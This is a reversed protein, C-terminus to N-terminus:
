DNPPISFAAFLKQDGRKLYLAIPEGAAVDELESYFEEVTNVSKRNIKLILDGERLGARQSNSGPIVSTVVVGEDEEINYQRKLSPILDSVSFGLDERSKKQAVKTPEEAPYEGITVSVTKEDGDRLIKLQVKTGPDTSGVRTSLHTVNKIREGNLGIIVDEVKLDAKEAPSDEMIETVVVGEPKDLNFTEALDPTINQIGVGLWGRVVRGKEVIDTMVKEALKSPIAFGIGMNGGTRTAIATNIGILEGKLNVLPGGSNGPNIAADTQIYDQYQSRGVGSRGKASVIGATVTHALEPQLPSGIALVWQGVRLAESDGIKIAPLDDADIKIVALDTREDTGEVTAELERGDMLTVYIDDADDVVHDNTLIIGDERVIVGSGLGQQVFEGQPNPMNFFRKFFDDGFFQSFPSIQRNKIVTKTYITVVSPNVTEAVDAFANSIAELVEISSKDAQNDGPAPTAESVQPSTEATSSQTFDLSSALALGIIIGMAILVLGFGTWKKREM